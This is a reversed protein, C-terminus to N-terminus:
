GGCGLLDAPELSASHEGRRERYGYQEPQRFIPGVVSEELREEDPLPPRPAIQIEQPDEETHEARLHNRREGQGRDRPKARIPRRPRQSEDVPPAERLILGGEGRRRKM